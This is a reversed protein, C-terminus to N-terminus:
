LKDSVSMALDDQDVVEVISMETEALNLETPDELEAGNADYALRVLPKFPDDGRAKVVAVSHDTLRVLCGIPFVGLARVLVKAYMPDLKTGCEALVSAVARDPTLAVGYADPKTLNEYRDCVAVMRSFPHAFYDAPREPHGSGDPAMHHEYAVLMPAPDELALRSIMEAGVTPHLLKVTQAQSADNVDFAAKGIDHLLASVGLSTLGEEPLGLAAGLTLSYIMVNISHFLASENQTRITAMGLVASEDEMLRGLIREVM